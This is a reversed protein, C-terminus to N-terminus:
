GTVDDRHKAAAARLHACVGAGDFCCQLTPQAPRAWVLRMAWVEVTPSADCVGVSCLAVDDHLTVRIGPGRLAPATVARALRVVYSSLRAVHSMTRCRKVAIM